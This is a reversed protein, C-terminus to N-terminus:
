EEILKVTEIIPKMQILMDIGTPKSFYYRRFKIEFGRSSFHHDFEAQNMATIQRVIANLNFIVEEKNM